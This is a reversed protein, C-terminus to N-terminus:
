VRWTRVIFDRYTWTTEVHSLKIAQIAQGFTTRQRDLYIVLVMYRNPEDESRLRLLDKLLSGETPHVTALHADGVFVRGNARVPVFADINSRGTINKSLYDLGYIKLEAIWRFPASGRLDVTGRANALKHSNVVFASDPGSRYFRFLEGQLWGERCGVAPLM